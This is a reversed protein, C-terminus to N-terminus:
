EAAGAGPVAKPWADGCLAAFTTYPFNVAALAGSLEGGWAEGWKGDAEAFVYLVKDRRSAPLEFFKKISENPSRAIIVFGAGQHGMGAVLPVLAQGHDLSCRALLELALGLHEPSRRLPIAAPFGDVRRDTAVAFSAGTESARELLSAAVELAAEFGEADEARRFGEGDLLFFIKRHTTPEFIKEQLVNFRASAKWNISRAPRDGTYEKTGEYWAPDEIIGKSPHIGFYDRFPVEMEGLPIIRPYVVISRKFPLIKEQMCLELIDGAALKAPGLEYVGRRPAKFSWTGSVSGFPMIGCEESIGSEGAPRLAEPIDLSFRAQVPLAKRNAIEARLTFEGGCHLRDGSPELNAELRTLAALGWLRLAGMLVFATASFAALPRAGAATAGFALAGLFVISLTIVFYSAATYSPREGKAVLEGSAVRNRFIGRERISEDERKM